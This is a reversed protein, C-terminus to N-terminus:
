RLVELVGTPASSPSAPTMLHGSEKLTQNETALASNADHLQKMRLDKSKLFKENQETQLKM